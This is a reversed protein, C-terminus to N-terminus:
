HNIFMIFIKYAEPLSKKLSLPKLEKTVFCHSSTGTAHLISTAQGRVEYNLLMRIGNFSTLKCYIEVRTGFRVAQKYECSVSLVPSLIGHEEMKTYPFGMKEMYDMRAEEFWRIYNSHHVIAMQDTEYYKVDRIYPPITHKM